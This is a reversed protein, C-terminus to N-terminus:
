EVTGGFQSDVTRVEYFEEPVACCLIQNGQFDIGDEQPPPEDESKKEAENGPSRSDFSTTGDVALVNPALLLPHGEVSLNTADVPGPDAYPMERYPVELGFHAAALRAAGEVRNTETKTVKQHYAWTLWNQLYSRPILFVKNKTELKVLLQLTAVLTMSQPTPQSLEEVQSEFSYKPPSAVRTSAASRYSPTSPPMTSIKIFSYQRSKCHTISIGSKYTLLLLLVLLLRSSSHVFFLLSPHYLSLFFHMAPHGHVFKM